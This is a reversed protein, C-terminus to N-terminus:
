YSQFENTGISNGINNSPNSITTDNSIIGQDSGTLNALTGITESQNGSSQNGSTTQAYIDNFGTFSFVTTAFMFLGIYIAKNYINNKAM